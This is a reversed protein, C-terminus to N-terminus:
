NFVVTNICDSKINESDEYKLNFNLIVYDLIPQFNAYCHSVFALIESGVSSPRGLKKSFDM